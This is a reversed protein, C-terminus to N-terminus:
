DLTHRPKIAPGIVYLTVANCLRLRSSISDPHTHTNTDRLFCFSDSDPLDCLSLDSLSAYLSDDSNRPSPAVCDVRTCRVGINLRHSGLLDNHRPLHLPPAPKFYLRPTHPNTDWDFSDTQGPHSFSFAGAPGHHPWSRAFAPAVESSCCRARMRAVKSLHVRTVTFTTGARGHHRDTVSVGTVKLVKLM